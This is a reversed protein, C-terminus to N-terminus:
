IHTNSHSIFCPVSKQLSLPSHRAKPPGRESKDAVCGRAPDMDVCATSVPRGWTFYLSAQMMCVCAYRLFRTNATCCPLLRLLIISVVVHYACWKRDAENSAKCYEGWSELGEDDEM